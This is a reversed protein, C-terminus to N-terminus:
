LITVSYDIEDVKAADKLPNLTLAQPTVPMPLQM